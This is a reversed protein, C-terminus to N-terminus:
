HEAMQMELKRKREARRMLYGAILVCAGVLCIILSALANIDPSLGLKVKSYIVM